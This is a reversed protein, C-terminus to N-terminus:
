VLSIHPTAKELSASLCANEGLIELFEYRKKESVLEHEYLHTEELAKDQM